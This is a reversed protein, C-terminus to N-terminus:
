GVNPPSYTLGRPDESAASLNRTALDLRTVNGASGISSLQHDTYNTPFTVTALQDRHGGIAMWLTDGSGWSPTLSPPDTTTASVVAPPTGVEPAQSAHMGTIRLAIHTSSTLGSLNVTIPSTESGTAFRYAGALGGEASGGVQDWLESWGGPWTVTRSNGNKFM